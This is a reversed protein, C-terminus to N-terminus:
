LYYGPHGALAGIHTLKTAIDHLVQAEHHEDFGVGVTGGDFGGFAFGIRHTVLGFAGLHARRTSQNRRM